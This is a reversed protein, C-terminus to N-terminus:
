PLEESVGQVGPVLLLTELNEQIDKSSKEDREEEEQIERSSL